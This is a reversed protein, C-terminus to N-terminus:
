EKKDIDNISGYHDNLLKCPRTCIVKVICIKCPCENMAVSGWGQLQCRGNEVCGECTM